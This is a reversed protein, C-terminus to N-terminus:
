GDLHVGVGVWPAVAVLDDGGRDGGGGVEVGGRKCVAGDLHGVRMDRVRDGAFGDRVLEDRGRRLEQEGVLVGDGGLAGGEGLVVDPDGLVDVALEPGAALEGVLGLDLGGADGVGDGTPVVDLVGVDDDPGDEAERVVGSDLVPGDHRHLLVLQVDPRGVEEVEIRRQVHGAVLVQAAHLDISLALLATTTALFLRPGHLIRRGAM